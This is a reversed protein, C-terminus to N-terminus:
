KGVGEKKKVGKRPVEVVCTSFIRKKLCIGSLDASKQAGALAVIDGLVVGRPMEYRGASTVSGAVEVIFCKEGDKKQLLFCPSEKEFSKFSFLCGLFSSFM